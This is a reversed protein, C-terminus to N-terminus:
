KMPIRLVTLSYPKLELSTEAGSLTMTSEVPAVAKPHEYSNEANLDASELTTVKAAGTFLFTALSM